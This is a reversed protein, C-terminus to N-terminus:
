IMDLEIELVEIERERKLPEINLKDEFDNKSNLSRESLMAETDSYAPTTVVSVDFLKDIEKITREYKGNSNEVWEDGNRAVTFAFSCKNILGSRMNEILDRAYSTNTPEIEFYLGVDDVSLKLNRGTRGLVFNDDHNLLAVVDTMDTKDLARKDIFEIFGLDESAKDFKLAYGSIVERQNNTEDLSRVDFEINSLRIDKDVSIKIM